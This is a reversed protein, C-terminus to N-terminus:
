RRASGDLSARMSLADEGNEYYRPRRGTAVFGLGAYLAIAAVNSARVELFAMRAGRAAALVATVLARAIGRRRAAHEVAVLLIEIEDAVQRVLVLGRLAGAAGRAVLARAGADRLTSAISAESWGPVGCEAALAALAAAADPKAEEIAADSAM